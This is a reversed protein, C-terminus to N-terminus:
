CRRRRRTLTMMTGLLLVALGSGSGTGTASCGAGSPDTANDKDTKDDDPIVPDPAVPDPDPAVTSTVCDSYARSGLAVQREHIFDVGRITVHVKEVLYTECTQTDADAEDARVAKVNVAVTEKPHTPNIIDEPMHGPQCAGAAVCPAGAGTNQHDLLTLRSLDPILVKLFLAGYDASSCLVTSANLDLEVNTTTDHVVTENYTPLAAATSISGAVLGAALLTTRTLSHM